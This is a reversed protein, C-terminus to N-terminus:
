AIGLVVFSPIYQGDLSCPLLGMDCGLSQGRLRLDMGYSANILKMSTNLACFLSSWYCRISLVSILANFGLLYTCSLPSPRAAIAPVWFEDGSRWECGLRSDFGLVLFEVSCSLCIVAMDVLGGRYVCDPHCFGHCRGEFEVWVATHFIRPALDWTFYRM